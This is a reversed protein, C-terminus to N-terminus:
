EMHLNVQNFCSLSWSKRCFIVIIRDFHELRFLQHLYSARFLFDFNISRANDVGPPHVWNPQRKITTMTPANSHPATPFLCNIRFIACLMPANAVFYKTSRVFNSGCLDRGRSQNHLIRIPPDGPIKTSRPNSWSTVTGSTPQVKGGGEQTADGGQFHM